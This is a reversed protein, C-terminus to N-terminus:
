PLSRPYGKDRDSDYVLEGAADYGKIHPPATAKRDLEGAAVFWGEDLAAEETRGGYTVTVRAVSPTVTGVAGWRFPLKWGKGSGDDFRPSLVSIDRDLAVPGAGRAPGRVQGGSAKSGDKVHCVTRAVHGPAAEDDVAVVVFGAKMPDDTVTARMALLMRFEEVPPAVPLPGSPPPEGATAERWHDLCARLGRTAQEHTVGDLLRGGAAPGVTDGGTTAPAALRYVGLPAVALVALAAGLVASRKRRAIRGRHRIRGYPAPSPDLEGAQEALLSRLAAEQSSDAGGHTENGNM